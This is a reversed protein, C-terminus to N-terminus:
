YTGCGEWGSIRGVSVSRVTDGELYFGLFSGDGSDNPDVRLSDGGQSTTNSITSDAQYAARIEAISSGDGVGRDTKAGAPLDIGTVRGSADEIWIALHRWDGGGPMEGTLVTCNYYHNRTVPVTVAASAQAETMGIKIPGYGQFSAVPPGAPGSGPLFGLGGVRGGHSCGTPLLCAVALLSLIGRTM